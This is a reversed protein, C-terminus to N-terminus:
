AGSVLQNIKVTRIHLWTTDGVKTTELEEASSWSVDTSHGKDISWWSGAERALEKDEFVGLLREKHTVMDSTTLVYLFDM